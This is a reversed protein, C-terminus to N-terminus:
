PKFRRAAGGPTKSPRGGLLAGTGGIDDDDDDLLDAAIDNMGLRDVDDKNWRPLSLNTPIAKRQPVDAPQAIRVGADDYWYGISSNGFLAPVFSPGISNHQGLQQFFVPDVANVWQRNSDLQNSVRKAMWEATRASNSRLFATSHFEAAVADFANANGLSREMAEVSQTALTVSVGYDRGNTVLNLLDVNGIRAAEDIIVATRRGVDPPLQSQGTDHTLLTQSALTLVARTIRAHVKEQAADNGILLLGNGAAWDKVSILSNPNQSLQYAWAAAVPLLTATRADLTALVDGFMRESKGYTALVSKTDPYLALIARVRKRSRTAFIWDSFQWKAPARRSLVIATSVFVSRAAEIWFVQDSSEQQLLENSSERIAPEHCLDRSVDWVGGRQDGPHLYQIKYQPLHALVFAYFESKPDVILARWNEHQVVNPLMDGMLQKAVLTKGSGISGVILINKLMEDLVLNCRGLRLVPGRQQILPALFKAPKIRSGDRGERFHPRGSGEAHVLERLVVFGLLVFPITRSWSSRLSGGVITLAVLLVVTLVRRLVFRIFSMPDPTLAPDIAIPLALSRRFSTAAEWAVAWFVVSAHVIALGPAQELSFRFSVLAALTPFAYSTITWSLWTLAYEAPTLRPSQLPSANNPM